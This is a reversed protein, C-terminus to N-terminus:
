HSARSRISIIKVAVCTEVVLTILYFIVLLGFLGSAALRSHVTTSAVGVILPPFTRAMIALFMGTVAQPGGSTQVTIMLAAAASIWCVVAALATAFIGEM